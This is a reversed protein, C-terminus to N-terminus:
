LGGELGVDIPTLAWDLKQCKIRCLRADYYKFDTVIARTKTKNFPLVLARIDTNTRVDVSSRDPGSPNM